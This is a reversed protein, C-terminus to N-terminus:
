DRIKKAIQQRGAKGIELPQDAFTYEAMRGGTSNRVMTTKLRIGLERVDAAARPAHNYGIEKLEDTSISGNAVIRDLVTKPRKNTIEAIRKLLDAPLKDGM